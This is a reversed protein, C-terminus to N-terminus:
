FKRVYEMYSEYNRHTEGMSDGGFKELFAEAVTLAVMSEGIVGAAPVACSDSREYAAEVPKKTIIDVSRLPKRQTPIPKMAARLIVPMGNTMGGEIGGAYNTKRYFGPPGGVRGEGELPSPSPSPAYFIEDMVESGFRGSLEFGLGGEVGKIAQISMLAQALRGDLRRDWQIHSGLGVPVGIVFVEFIGGLSNGERVAKDILKVMKKSAEEDPCRVPSKEAKKFISGLIRPNSSKLTQTGESAGKTGRGRSGQIGIEGIQIVYSGIEVNFESLFKKAVAGLAVRMATERASSRELINRIDHQDYKIAGSLDAHGPRPKTVAAISGGADADPSMGELWNKYDKNAILVTIPSGITKGWRVGSLIEAHDSEIKMRGGRGYGGQRRKLDRDIDEASISLGSPIGELIGVLAKGHSEGAIIYRLTTM